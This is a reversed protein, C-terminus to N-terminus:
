NQNLISFWILDRYEGRLFLCERFKGEYEFGCKKYLAIAAKNDALVNLYVRHIAFDDFAIRLIEKTAWTGIGKGQAKNRLSIAYEASKNQIDIDKLSITGLYENDDNAIAYHVDKGDEPFTSASCIFALVDEETKELMSKRFSKQIEPDHMWELMGDADEECLRRLKM